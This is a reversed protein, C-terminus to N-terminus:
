HNVLLGELDKVPEMAVTVQGIQDSPANPIEKESLGRFVKIHGGIGMRVLDMREEFVAPDNAAPKEQDM